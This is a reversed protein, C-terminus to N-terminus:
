GCGLLWVSPSPLLYLKALWFCVKRTLHSFIKGALAMLLAERETCPVRWSQGAASLGAQRRRVRPRAEAAREAVVRSFYGGAPSVAEGGAAAGAM